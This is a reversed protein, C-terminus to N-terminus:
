SFIKSLIDLSRPKKFDFLHLRFYDLMITLFEQRQKGNLKEDKVKDFNIGLMSKFVVLKEGSISFKTLTNDTFNGNELDFCDLQQQTTDPYCGLYKSLNMLFLLHFNACIENNDLWILSEEIYDYLPLNAEEEKILLTLVESLFLAITNKYINTYLSRTPHYVQVEKLYNLGSTNKHNSTLQILMLPQFLAPKIGSKRSSYVGKILYSALGTERTFCNVILSTDKFKKASFVIAKTTVLM